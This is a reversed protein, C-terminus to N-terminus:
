GVVITGGCTPCDAQSVRYKCQPCESALNRSTTFGCQDCRFTLMSPFRGECTPCSIEDSRSTAYTRVTSQVSRTVEKAGRSAGFFVVGWVVLVVVAVVVLIGLM